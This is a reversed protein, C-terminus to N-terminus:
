LVDIEEKYFKGMMELSGKNRCKYVQKNM